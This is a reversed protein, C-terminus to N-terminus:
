LNSIFDVQNQYCKKVVHFVKRELGFAKRKFCIKYLWFAFIIVDFQIKTPHRLGRNNHLPPM